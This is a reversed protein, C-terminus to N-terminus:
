AERGGRGGVTRFFYHDFVRPVKKKEKGALIPVQLM